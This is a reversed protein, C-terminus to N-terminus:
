KILWISGGIIDAAMKELLVEAKWILKSGGLSDM